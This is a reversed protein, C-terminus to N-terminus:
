RIELSVDGEFALPQGDSSISTEIELSLKNRRELAESIDCQWETRPTKFSGFEHGNLSVSRLSPVDRFVCIVRENPSLNTPCNFHRVMLFRAPTERPSGTVATPVAFPLDIRKMSSPPSPQWDVAPSDQQSTATALLRYEWPGRLRIVHAM